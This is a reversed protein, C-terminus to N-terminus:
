DKLVVNQPGLIDQLSHLLDPTPNINKATGLKVTKRNAEYHLVVSINGKNNELLQNIQQLYLDEHKEKSVKLYLVPQKLSNRQIWEDIEYVQQIIFQLKEDREEIKGELVAFKGQQLFSSSKKFVNPFAIAEMEGSSDSITLFAMLEGKRTRITKIESLYVGAAAKLMRTKIQFLPQAGRQILDKEYVSIPHDSLYLGLVEKEFSLKHGQSIPDVIVYKPKLNFEGEFLDFQNSDDPKFIQAHEVAVDLSALLVARDMGFDDFSGSHVLVELTRRNIAKTSVRICFDFLDKFLKKKRAQFIERLAAAGVGKIAALSYRIEGNEVQFPFSSHNISPQLIPIGMQKAEMLYQAIKTENGIASTLLGAMFYVPYNAKLYALQYAIMSYAVAHSRNFGYNAFRVILDYIENATAVEYGKLLAGNVFHNREKDLVEKQKKSVARRLLDAEGLSFGAMKSAIQIIQEQYVIVGYTNELIPMLDPHPYEVSIRGHKRDIFLPINEMPGPRYLANVAVIDEFRSPKLRRLVKRMGDSELQFIGTTEGAALLTFTRTDSLPISRIDLTQGTHRKITTLITEILTLNRLGLFDMKLLGMEELYEMSYQTLYVHASGQQIPVLDVLPKDSIVVGAAHTSTHRPLGELKLATEFLKKNQPTDSIFKRLGESEKYAEALNIGIRSPILRSLYDLEKTNLGFVRGVDRLAAKSALTGFTIIQAVHLEGYKKAVYEIVEDRRHDPFDIDIDPMSIREPNLFREFLLNHEIPDVDTIYLCFSVLSGAASGRGPGTLIGNERAFRMFDWVILFYNSFKMRKIVALEYNLRDMYEKSPSSFRKELGTLCLSELYEDASIDQNETPFAPLYTKNLEINVNCREAILLTNELAEPFDAFCDAMEAATKLYFQDNEFKERHEDQLKDGNKIALLCEHAFMDDKDLYHVQNTAALPINLEKSLLLLHPRISAEQHLHHIQMALYFNKKGFIAAYKAILERAFDLDGKTLAQEIEGEDGPTIAILGSGYHQLWKLPIGNESKTLVASSIKLLNKYGAENEALLVLPFAENESQIGAVDVTLGVIPKIGMQKCLKYFEITGYMVNRDTLALARFGKEYATKVLGPVSATSTLLSYASYVHLHIFSM